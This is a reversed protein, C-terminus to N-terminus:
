PAYRRWGTSTALESADLGLNALKNFVGRSYRNGRSIREQTNRSGTHYLAVALRWSSNRNFHERLIQAGVDLNPYPDLAREFSQLKDNHYGWNVQMAGCDVNRIGRVDVYKRLAKLTAEYSGYRKAAGRVCLTWPYPLTQRGFKMQSEQLAVGYLLWPDINWRQGAWDYARPPLLSATVIPAGPRTRTRPMQRVYGHPITTQEQPTIKPEIRVATDSWYPWWQPDLGEPQALESQAPAAIAWSRTMVGSATLATLAGLFQRRHMPTGM